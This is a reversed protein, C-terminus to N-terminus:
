IKTIEVHNIGNNFKYNLWEELKAFLQGKFVKLIIPITKIIGDEVDVGIIFQNTSIWYTEIM